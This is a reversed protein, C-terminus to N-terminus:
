DPWCLIVAATHGEHGDPWTVTVKAHTLAGHPTDGTTFTWTSWSRNYFLTPYYTGPGVLEWTADLFVGPPHDGSYCLTSIYETTNKPLIVLPPAHRVYEFVAPKPPNFPQIAPNLPYVPPWHEILPWLDIGTQILITNLFDIDAKWAYHQWLDYGHMALSLKDTAQKWLAKKWPLTARWVMAHFTMRARAYCQAVSAPKKPVTRPFWVLRGNKRTYMTLDGLDGGVAFGLMTLLPDIQRLAM